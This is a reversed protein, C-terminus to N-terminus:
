FRVNLTREILWILAVGAILLSGLTVVGYRYLATHRCWYAIPLFISAAAIQAGEVGLNFGLLALLFNGLSMSLGSLVSAYGAGHIFGFGLAVMWLRENRALPLVNNLAAFLITAAVMAEVWRVPLRLWELSVALLSLAHAVTFATVVKAVDVFARYASAAVEFRGSRWRVVAPLLLCSLFLLHDLGLGIHFVGQWFYSSFAAWGEPQGPEVTARRQEASLVLSREGRHDVRALLRHEDDIDILWDYRLDLDGARPCRADFALALFRGDAHDVIAVPHTEIACPAKDLSLSLAQAPVDRLRSEAARVEGWTVHGDVNADLALLRHADDIRVDFRGQVTTGQVDLSLYATSPQHASAPFAAALLALVFFRAIV